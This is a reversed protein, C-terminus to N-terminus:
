YRHKKQQCCQKAKKRSHVVTNRNFQVLATPDPRTQDPRTYNRQELEEGRTKEGRIKTGPSSRPSRSASAPPTRCVPSCRWGPGRGRGRCPARSRPHRRPLLAGASWVSSSAFTFVATRGFITDMQPSEFSYLLQIIQHSISILSVTEYSSIFVTGTQKWSSWDINNKFAFFLDTLPILTLSLFMRTQTLAYSCRGRNERLCSPIEGGRNIHQDSRWHIIHNWWSRRPEPCADMSWLCMLLSQM